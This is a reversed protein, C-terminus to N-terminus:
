ASWSVRDRRGRSETSRQLDRASSSRRPFKGCLDQVCGGNRFPACRVVRQGDVSQHRRDVRQQGARPRASTHHSRGCVRTLKFESASLKSLKRSRSAHRRPMWAASCRSASTRTLERRYLEGPIAVRTAGDDRGLLLAPAIGDKDTTWLPETAASSHPARARKEASASRAGVRAWRRVVQVWGASRLASKGLRKAVRDIMQSSVATKGCRRRRCVVLPRNRFLYDIMVSLYHNSPM